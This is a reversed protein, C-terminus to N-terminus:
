TTSTSTSTTTSTTLPTAEDSERYNISIFVSNTGTTSTLKLASDKAGNFITEFSAVGGGEANLIAAIRNSKHDYIKVQGTTAKTNIDIRATRISKGTSPTIITLATQNSTFENTYTDSFDHRNAITTQSDFAVNSM